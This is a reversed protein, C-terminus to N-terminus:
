GAFRVEALGKVGADMALVSGAWPQDALAAASLDLSATTIYLTALDAGGFMVSTPRQVPVRVSRELKGAPDYRNICWRDIQASWVFGEADVTMGDPGGHGSEVMAFVRRNAATGLAIDYDYAYICRSPTDTHYITRNDPSFGIGNSITAGAPVRQMKFQGGICYLDGIPRTLKRDMAGVWFRGARDTKGDNFGTEGLDIAPMPLWAVEGDPRDLTAFGRRFAILFGGNARLAFSGVLKPLSWSQSVKSVPDFRWLQPPTINVWWLVREIPCWM